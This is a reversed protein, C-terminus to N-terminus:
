RDSRRWTLLRLTGSSNFSALDLVLSEATSGQPGVKLLSAVAKDGKAESRACVVVHFGAKLLGKCTEFGIGANGGTVLAIPGTEKGSQDLSM